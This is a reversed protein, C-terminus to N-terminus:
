ACTKVRLEGFLGFTGRVSKLRSEGLVVFVTPWPTKFTFGKAAQWWQWRIGPQGIHRM